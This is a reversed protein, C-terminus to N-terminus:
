LKVIVFSQLEAVIEKIVQDIKIKEEANFPQLVYDKGSMTRDGGRGDVGVRVFWIQDTGLQEIVSNVGNHIKPSSGFVIKYQGLEIDLDDHVVYISGPPIQWFNAMAAVALGSENMYTTPKALTVDGIRILEAKFKDKEPWKEENAEGTAEYLRKALAEVVMYGINHRTNAYKKGPNGLGVILM